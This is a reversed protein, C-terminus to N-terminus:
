RQINKVWGKLSKFQLGHDWCFYLAAYGNEVNIIILFTEQAHLDAYEFSKQIIM